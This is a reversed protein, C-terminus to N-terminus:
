YPSLQTHLRMSITTFAAKNPNLIKPSKIKKFTINYLYINGSKRDIECEIILDHGYKRRAALKIGDEMARIISETEIGKDSALKEAILILEKSGKITDAM